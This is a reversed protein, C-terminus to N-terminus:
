VYFDGISNKLSWEIFDKETNVLPKGKVNLSTNLLVPVGTAEYFKELIARLITNDSRSVTQVRSTGDIHVGAPILEPKLCLPTYQMYPSEYTMNFWDEAYESLVVPAVPRFDERNKLKNLLDKSRMTRPDALLSRNGLARPGFEARGSAIGVLEGAILASVARDIDIESKIEYGLYPSEWDLHAGYVAAAAGLSSGADGPNPMIWVGSFLDWLRTNASSNLACGGMFVLNDRGTMTKAMSMFELLRDVYVRQVASAIDAWDSEKVVGWDYIGRHFNYKQKTASPFYSSVKKYYRDSDGYAAMGMLIYEEENPKLGILQTFASYFLGYSFPYGWSKVLKLSCGTGIWISSTVVEGISDLVVVVADNFSSTFYGAAAHSKHHSVYKKPIAQFAKKYYLETSPVGGLLSVRLNKLWPKEYYAIVDPEGYSLVEEVIAPNLSPDNKIGSYREAHSAFLIKPGDILCISADHTGESVGLIKM